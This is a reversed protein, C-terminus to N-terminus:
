NVESTFHVRLNHLDGQLTGMIARPGSPGTQIERQLTSFFKGSDVVHQHRELYFFGAPKPIAMYWEILDQMERNWEQSSLASVILNLDPLHDDHLPTTKDSKDPINAYTYKKDIQGDITSVLNNGYTIPLKNTNVGPITADTAIFLESINEHNGKM